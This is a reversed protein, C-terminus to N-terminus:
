FNEKDSRSQANLPFVESTTPPTPGQLDPDGWPTRFATLRNADAKKAPTKTAQSVAGPAATLAIAGIVFLRVFDGLIRSEM